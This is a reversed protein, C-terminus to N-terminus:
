WVCEAASCLTTTEYSLWVRMLRSSGRTGAHVCWLLDRVCAACKNACKNCWGFMPLHYHLCFSYFVLYPSELFTCLPFFLFFGVARGSISWRSFGNLLLAPLIATVLLLPKQSDAKVKWLCGNSWYWVDLLTCILIMVLLHGRINNNVSSSTLNDRPVTLRM